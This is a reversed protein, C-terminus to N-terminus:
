SKEEEVFRNSKGVAVGAGELARMWQCIPCEEFTTVADAFPVMDFAGRTIGWLGHGKFRETNFHYFPYEDLGVDLESLAGSYLVIDGDMGIFRGTWESALAAKWNEFINRRDLGAGAGPLSSITPIANNEALGALVSSSLLHGTKLAINVILPM